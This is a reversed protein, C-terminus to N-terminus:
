EALEQAARQARKKELIAEKASKRPGREAQSASPRHGESSGGGGEGSVDQPEPTRRRVGSTRKKGDGPASPPPISRARDLDRENWVKLKM